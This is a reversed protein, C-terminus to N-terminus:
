SYSKEEVLKSGTLHNIERKLASRKDNNKYVSRAAEVFALGFEGRGEMARLDDEVCWIALNIAKLEILLSEVTHNISVSARVVANLARLENEINRLKSEDSIREAKIQLISIKDLVEGVSVPALIVDSM